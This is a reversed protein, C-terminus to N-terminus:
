VVDTLTSSPAARAPAVPYMWDAASGVLVHVVTGAPLKVDLEIGIKDIAHFPLRHAAAAALPTAVEGSPVVHVIEALAAAAPPATEIAAFPDVHIPPDVVANYTTLDVSPPVVHDFSFGPLMGEVM